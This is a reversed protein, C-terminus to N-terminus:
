RDDISKGKWRLSGDYLITLSKESAQEFGDDLGIMKTVGESVQYQSWSYASLAAVTTM